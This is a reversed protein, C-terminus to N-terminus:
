LWSFRHWEFEFLYNISSIRKIASIPITVNTAISGINLTATLGASKFELGGLMAASDESEREWEKVLSGAITFETLPIELFCNLKCIGGTWYLVVM